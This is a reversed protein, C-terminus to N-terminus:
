GPPGGLSRLAILITLELASSRRRHRPRKAKVKAICKPVESYPLPIRRKKERTTSRCRRTSPTRRSQGEAVGQRHVVAHRHPHAAPRPSCDGAEGALHSGAGALVDASTIEPARVKGFHPFAYTELTAIVQAAHKPNRWTPRHAEHVARAAEEFTMVADAERKTSLPDGGSRALRRNALAVERAEALSVLSPRASGWSAPSGASSSASYGDGHTREARRAPLPGARRLAQRAERQTGAGGDAGQGALTEKRGGYRLTGIQMGLEMWSIVPVVSALQFINRRIYSFCNLYVSHSSMSPVCNPPDGTRWRKDRDEVAM